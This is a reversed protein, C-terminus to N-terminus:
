GNLTGNNQFYVELVIEASLLPLDEDREITLARIQALRELSEIQQLFRHVELFRGALTVNIRVAGIGGIDMPETPEINKATLGTDAAATALQELLEGLKWSRPIAAELQDLEDRYTSLNAEVDEVSACLQECQEIEAACEAQEAHLRKIEGVQPWAVLGVFAVVSAVAGISLAISQYQNRKM